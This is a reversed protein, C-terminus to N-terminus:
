LYADRADRIVQSETTKDSTAWQKIRCKYSPPAQFTYVDARAEGIRPSRRRTRKIKSLADPAFTREEFDAAIAEIEDGTPDKDNETKNKM